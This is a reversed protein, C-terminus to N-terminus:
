KRTQSLLGDGQSCHCLCKCEIGIDLLEHAQDDVGEVRVLLDEEAFQDRVGGIGEILDPVLGERVGGDEVAVGLHLDLEDVM